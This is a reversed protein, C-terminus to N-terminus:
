ASAAVAHEAKDSNTVPRLMLEGNKIEYLMPNVGAEALPM